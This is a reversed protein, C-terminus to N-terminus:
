PSMPAIKQIQMMWIAKATRGPIREQMVLRLASLPSRFDIYAFICHVMKFWFVLADPFPLEKKAKRTPSMPTKAMLSSQLSNSTTLGKESFYPPNESKSKSYSIEISDEIKLSGCNAGQDGEEEGGEEQDDGDESDEDSSAM